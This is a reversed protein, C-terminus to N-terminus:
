HAGVRGIPVADFVSPCCEYVLSMILRTPRVERIRFQDILDIREGGASQRLIALEISRGMVSFCAVSSRFSHAGVLLDLGADPVVVSDEMQHIRPCLTVFVANDELVPEFGYFAFFVQAEGGWIARSRSSDDRRRDFEFDPLTIASLADLTPGVFSKCKSWSRGKESPPVDIVAAFTCSSQARCLRSFCSEIMHPRGEHLGFLAVEPKGCRHDRSGGAWDIM